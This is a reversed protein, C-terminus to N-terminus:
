RARGYPPAPSAHSDATASTAGEIRCGRANRARESSRLRQTGCPPTSRLAHSLGHKVHPPAM